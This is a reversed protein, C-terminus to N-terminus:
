GVALFATSLAYVLMVSAIALAVSRDLPSGQGLRIIRLTLIILLLASLGVLIAILTFKVKISLVRTRPGVSNKM